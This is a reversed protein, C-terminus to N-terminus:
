SVAYLHRLALEARGLPDAFHDGPVWEFSVNVSDAKLRDVVALTNVGVSRYAKTKAEPELRGLLFFAKGTKHIAPQRDFWEMFGDYWFSGSLSAISHFTDNFMWQWLTFLGALSVGTLSRRYIKGAPLKKEIEPIISDQLTKLTATAKGAFPQCGPAEGPEAWPTLADNWENAPVYVAVINIGHLASQQELWIQPLPELAPYLIYAVSTSDNVTILDCNFGEITITIM